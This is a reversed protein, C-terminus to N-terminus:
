KTEPFSLKFCAGSGQSCELLEVRGGFRDMVTKVVGLGLGTGGNGKTSYFMDFIKYGVDEPVGPGNDEITVCIDSGDRFTRVYIKRDSKLDQLAQCANNMINMLCQRLLVGEGVILPLDLAYETMCSCATQRFYPAGVTVCSDVIQNLQIPGDVGKEHRLFDMTNRAIDTCYRVQSQMTKIRKLIDERDPKMALLELHSNLVTLPTGLDHMMGSVMRGLTEFRSAELALEELVRREREEQFKKCGGAVTDMMKKSDFPKELYAFAGYEVAMVATELEGYGTMMIVQIDPSKSKILKLLEVGTVKPMRIDSVVVGIPHLELIELAEKPSEAIHVEYTEKLLMRLAQRPGNEDDVVLVHARDASAISMVSEKKIIQVQVRNEQLRNTSM